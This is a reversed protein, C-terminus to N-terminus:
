CILLTVGLEDVRKNPCNRPWSVSECTRLTPSIDLRTRGKSIATSVREQPPGACPLLLSQRPIRELAVRFDRHSGPARLIGNITTDMGTVREELNKNSEIQIGFM